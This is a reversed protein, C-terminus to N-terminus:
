SALIFANFSIFSHIFFNEMLNHCKAAALDTLPLKKNQGHHCLLEWIDKEAAQYFSCCISRAWLSLFRCTDLVKHYFGTIYHFGLSPFKMKGLVLADIRQHDQDQSEHKSGRGEAVGGEVAVETIKGGQSGRQKLVRGRREIVPQDNLDSAHDFAGQLNM